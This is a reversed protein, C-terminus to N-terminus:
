KGGGAQSKLWRGIAVAGSELSDRLRLDKEGRRPLLPVAAAPLAYSQPPDNNGSMVGWQYGAVHPVSVPIKNKAALWRWGTAEEDEGNEECEDALKLMVDFLISDLEQLLSEKQDRM